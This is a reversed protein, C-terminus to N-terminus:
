KHTRKTRKAYLEVAWYAVAWAILALVVYKAVSIVVNTDSFKKMVSAGVFVSAVGGGLVPKGISM